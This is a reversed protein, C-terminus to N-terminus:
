IRLPASPVRGTQVDHWFAEEEALLYEMNEQMEDRVFFYTRIVSNGDSGILEAFLYAFDYGTALFQHSLQCLYGDPVRNKWKEWDAKSQCTCTKIELIGKYGDSDTLEGDLTARLWPREEQYVFDYPRYELTLEPHKAMFLSRLADEARNGYAVAPNASLDKQKARGIKLDWLDMKSMFGVGIIAGAESAGIHGDRHALWEERTEHTEYVTMNEEQTQGAHHSEMRKRLGLMGPVSLPPM